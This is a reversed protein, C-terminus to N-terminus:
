NSLIYKRQMRELTIALAANAKDRDAKGFKIGKVAWNVDETSKREVREACVGVFKECGEARRVDVAIATELAELLLKSRYGITNSSKLRPMM